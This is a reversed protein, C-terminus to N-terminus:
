SSRSTPWPSGKLQLDRAAAAFAAEDAPWICPPPDRFIQAAEAPTLPRSSVRAPVGFREVAAVARSIAAMTEVDPLAAQVAAVAASAQTVAAITAGAGPDLAVALMRLHVDEEDADTTDFLQLPVHVGDRELYADVKEVPRVERYRPLRSVM